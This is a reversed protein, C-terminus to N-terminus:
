GNPSPRPRPLHSRTQAPPPRRRKGLLMVRSVHAKAGFALARRALRLDPRGFWALRRQVYWALLATVAVQGALWAGIATGVTLLGAAALVVNAGLNTVPPLVYGLNTVRFGYDAQILFRLFPQLILVPLFALTM